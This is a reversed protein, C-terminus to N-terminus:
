ALIEPRPMAAARVITPATEDLVAAVALEKAEDRHADYQQLAELIADGWTAQPDVELRVRQMRQVPGRPTHIGTVMYLGDIQIGAVRTLAVDRKVPVKMLLTRDAEDTVTMVVRPIGGDPYTPKPAPEPEATVIGQEEAAGAEAEREPEPRQQGGGGSGVQEEAVRPRPEIDDFGPVDDITEPKAM